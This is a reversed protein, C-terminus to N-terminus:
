KIELFYINLNNGSGSCITLKASPVPCVRAEQNRFQVEGPGFTRAREAYRGANKGKEM